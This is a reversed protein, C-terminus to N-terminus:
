TKIKLDEIKIESDPLGLKGPLYRESKKPRYFVVVLVVILAGIVIVLSVWALRTASAKFLPVPNVFAVHTKPDGPAYYIPITGGPGVPYLRDLVTVSKPDLSFSEFDGTVIRGDVDFRYLVRHDGGMRMLPRDAQGGGFPRFRHEIIKGQVRVANRWPWTEYVISVDGALSCVIGFLIGIGGLIGLAFRHPSLLPPTARAQRERLRRTPDM